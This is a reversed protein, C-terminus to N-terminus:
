NELCDTIVNDKEKPLYIIGLSGHVATTADTNTVASDYKGRRQRNIAADIRGVIGATLWLTL